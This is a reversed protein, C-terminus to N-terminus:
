AWAYLKLTWQSKTINAMAGPAGVLPGQINNAASYDRRTTIVINNSAPDAAATLAYESPVASDLFYYLPVEADAAHGTGTAVGGSTNKLVAIVIKPMAALGHAVSFGTTITSVVSSLIGSNIADGAVIRLSPTVKAWVTGDYRFIDNTVAGAALLRAVTLEGDNFLGNPTVWELATGAANTRAVYRATGPILNTELALRAAGILDTSPVIPVAGWVGGNYGLFKGAALGTTSIVSQLLGGGDSIATNVGVVEIDKGNAAVRLVYYASAPTASYDANLKLLGVNIGGSASRAAMMSTLVALNAVGLSAWYADADQLVSRDGIYRKFTPNAPNSIDLWIYRIFRANNTIDPRTTSVIVFGINDLPKAQNIAQMLQEQTISSLASLDVGSIIDKQASM